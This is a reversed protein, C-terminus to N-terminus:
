LYKADWKEIKELLMELSIGCNIGKSVNDSHRILRCNAPHSIIAPDIDHDFGYRVSVIHDRSIGNLNNGRNKPKYWGYIEILSFDFEDPYENLAFKFACDARYNQLPTRNARVEEVKKIRSPSFKGACSRSCYNKDNHRTKTFSFEEGCPCTKYVTSPQIYPEGSLKESIKRRQEVSPVWGSNTRERNSHSAACSNSCFKNNRKEFRIDVNCEKCRRPANLYEDKQKAKEGAARESLLDYKGNNGNSYHTKGLHTRDYHTFIGKHSYEKKCIICCTNKM